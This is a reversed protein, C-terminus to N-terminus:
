RPAPRYCAEDRRRRAAVAAIVCVATVTALTVAAGRAFGDPRYYLELRHRGAPVAFALFAHNYTLPALINGDLRAKWGPWAPVSTAVVCRGEADVDLSLAAGSRYSVLDVRAPANEVWRGAPMVPDAALVGRESFDTIGELVELRRGPDSEIWLRRPVFARPLVRSNELLDAGPGGARRSWGDPLPQGTPALAWRVNLFSLFPRSLDDVRNFWVNQASWLPYTQVLPWLTLSEYGRVDEIEYMAAANPVLLNGWAVFREPVGRRIPDLVPLHPYFASAPCTRYIGGAEAVRSVALLVVLIGGVVRPSLGNHMRSVLVAALLIPVLELALRGSLFRDSLGLARMRPLLIGFLGLISAGVIAASVLFLRVRDGDALRDLGMAALGCVGFVALFVFYDTLAMDFLPLSALADTIAPARAWLAAGLVVLTLLAWRRPSKSAVGCVALPLLLAGAYGGAMGFQGGPLVAGPAGQTYPLLSVASRRLSEVPPVSKPLHAYYEKRIAHEWTQPLIEALPLLQVATLGLALVGAAASLGIARMRQGRASQALAFLFYVGAGAVSFLLTEPHGALAILVLAGATLATSRAGPSRALRDLGLLLLPFPGLANSVPYGLWFVFFDSFGWGLAGCLAAIDRCGLERLFLYGALIALFLRLSMQLTWGQGLPLLFSAWTAPHLAGSQQVALLPEGGLILPNWLPFRGNKVSYRLAKQWPIMSAVVDSLLPSQVTTMGTSDRISTFPEGLYLIDLPAYVGGTVTAKGTFLLPALAILIAVLPRVERIWRRVLWFCLAATAAYILLSGAVIGAKTVM